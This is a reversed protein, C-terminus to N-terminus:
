EARISPHVDKKIFISSFADGSQKLRVAKDLIRDRADKSDVEVLIPRRKDGTHAGLRHHKRVEEGADVRAWIKNLKEEDCTAGELAENEDPVRTVIINKEREKRDLIELYRQQKAIIEAQRTVQGQLDDFRKNITSDPATVALKLEVVEKVLDQFKEILEKLVGENSDPTALISERGDVM